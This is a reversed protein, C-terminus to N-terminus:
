LAIRTGNSTTSGAPTLINISQLVVFRGQAQPLTFTRSNATVTQSSDRVVTALLDLERYLRQEAYAIIDPEITTYDASPPTTEVALDIVASQWTTYTLGTM